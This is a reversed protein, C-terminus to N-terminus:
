AATKGTLALLAEWTGVITNTRDIPALLDWGGHEQDLVLYVVPGGPGCWAEIYDYSPLGFKGESLCRFNHDMLWERPERMRAVAEPSAQKTKM